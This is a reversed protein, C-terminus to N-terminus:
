EIASAETAKTWPSQKERFIYVEVFRGSIADTAVYKSDGTLVGVTGPPM